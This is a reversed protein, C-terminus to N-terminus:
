VIRNGNRYWGDSVIIGYLTSFHIILAVIYNIQIEEVGLLVVGLWYLSSCITWIVRSQTLISDHYPALTISTSILYREHDLKPAPYLNAYVVM